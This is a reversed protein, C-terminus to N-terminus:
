KYGSIPEEGNERGTGPARCPTRPGAFAAIGSSRRPLPHEHPWLGLQPGLLGPYGPLADHGEPAPLSLKSRLHTHTHTHLNM